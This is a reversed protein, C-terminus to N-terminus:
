GVEIALKREWAELIIRGGKIHCATGLCVKIPHKGPPILRFQNYYSKLSMM